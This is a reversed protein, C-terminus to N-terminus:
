TGLRCKPMGTTYRSRLIDRFGSSGKYLLM